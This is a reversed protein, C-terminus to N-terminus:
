GGPSSFDAAPAALAVPGAVEFSTDSPTGPPPEGTILDSAASALLEELGTVAELGRKLAGLERAAVVGATVRGMIRELDPIQALLSSADGRKFGDHFFFDVADLRRELEGLDLDPQGLWRRLLRGGMPTRTLDLTALLSFQREERRGAQFLELNRRTQSDLTMYAATSYTTLSSIQPMGAKHTQALYDVIAGAAGVALAMGECGFSELSIAGYYGLIAQRAADLGFLGPDLPPPPAFTPPGMQGLLHPGCLFM